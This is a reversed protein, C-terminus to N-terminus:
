SHACFDAVFTLAARDLEEQSTGAEKLHGKTAILSHDGSPVVHLRSEAKRKELVRQLEPLPCLADRTGQVFCAPRELELLVEDRLSGGPSKLPYGLCVVGLVPEELALHCGIRSGMSKGILVVDDGHGERAQKARGTQLAQRHTELLVAHKDPSKRGASMYRYDFTEVPGIEQLLGAWKQMWASASGAGAGHAFLFWVM